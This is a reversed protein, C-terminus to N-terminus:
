KNIGKKERLKSESLAQAFLHKLDPNMEKKRLLLGLAASKRVIDTPVNRWVYLRGHKIKWLSITIHMWFIV